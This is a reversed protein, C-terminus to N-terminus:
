CAPTPSPRPTATANSFNLRKTAAMNDRAYLDDGAQLQEIAISPHV